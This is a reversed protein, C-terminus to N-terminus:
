EDLAATVLRQGTSLLTIGAVPLSPNSLFGVADITGMYARPRGGHKVSCALSRIREIVDRMLCDVFSPLSKAKYMVIIMNSIVIKYHYLVSTANTKGFFHKCHM